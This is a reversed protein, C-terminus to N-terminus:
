VDEQYGVSAALATATKEIRYTGAPLDVFVTNPAASVYIGGGNNTVARWDGDPGIDEVIAYEGPAFKSGYLWFGRGTTTFETVEGPVREITSEIIPEM